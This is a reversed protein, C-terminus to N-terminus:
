QDLRVSVDSDSDAAAKVVKGIYVNSGVTTTVVGNSADWYVKNGVTLASGSDTSKPLKYIGTPWIAGKDNADIDNRAVCFLQDQVIVDGATVDSDPTYDISDGHHVFDASEGSM